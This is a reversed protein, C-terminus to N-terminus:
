RAEIIAYPKASEDNLSIITNDGDKFLVPAIIDDLLASKRYEVRLHKPYLIEALQLGIKVYEENNMHHNTDIHFEEVRIPKLETGDKPLRIKREGYEMDLKQETVYRDEIYKEAKAFRGTETNIYAWVSNAKALIEGKEDWMVYNRLGVFGNFEYPWTGVKVKELFQPYRNVEIQWANIYWARNHDDLYDIGLGVDESHFSSADQFYNILSSMTLLKNEGVESYRIVSDFSYM